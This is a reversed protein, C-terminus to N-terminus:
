KESENKGFTRVLRRKLMGLLMRVTVDLFRFFFYFFLKILKISEMFSLYWKTKFKVANGGSVPLTFIKLLKDFSLYYAVNAFMTDFILEVRDSGDPVYPIDDSEWMYQVGFNEWNKKILLKGKPELMKYVPTGPYPALTNFRVSSLPLSHVLKIANWRDRRTETPLGFILTTGVPIGKMATRKIAEVVEALTEGKNIVKMLDESGTELGLSILKFNAERAKELVEDTANDGRMSGIFFADKHLEEQRIRDCLEMFHKKNVAINDDLLWVSNQKYTYVLTKMELIVREVSHFRYTRGTISRSSCFICSYPCGRSGFITSFSTYKDLDNEFLHYPIPPISDLDEILPREPTSFIADGIRYSIGSVHRYNKRDRILCVLERLTEEGEGRVVIDAGNKLVEEACVTPHIGGMIITAGPDLKKIKQALEYARACNLTLVSFGVIRPERLAFLKDALGDDSLPHIQEDAISISEVTDRLLYGALVAVSSPFTAIIVSNIIKSQSAPNVAPVILLIDNV